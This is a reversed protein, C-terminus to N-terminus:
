KKLPESIFNLMKKTYVNWSFNYMSKRANDSITRKLSSDEALIHIYKVAEDVYGDVSFNQSRNKDLSYFRDKENRGTIGKEM